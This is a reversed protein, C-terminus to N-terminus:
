NKLVGLTPETTTSSVVERMAARHEFLRAMLACNCLLFDHDRTDFVKKLDVFIGCSYLKKKKISILNYKILLILLSTSHLSTRELAMNLNLSYTMNISLLNQDSICLNRLSVILFLCFYYRATITQTLHTKM